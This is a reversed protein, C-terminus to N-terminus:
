GSAASGLADRVAQALSAPTFPKQLLLEDTAFQGHSELAGATYGSMFLVKLGPQIARLSTAVEFGSLGPMIVDTIALDMARQRALQVA